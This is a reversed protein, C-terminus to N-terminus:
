SIMQGKQQIGPQAANQDAGVEAFFRQLPHEAWIAM